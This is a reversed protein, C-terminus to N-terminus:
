KPTWVVEGKPPAANLHITLVEGSMVESRTQYQVVVELFLRSYRRVVGRRALHHVGEKDVTVISPNQIVQKVQNLFPEIEAHKVIIHGVWRSLLLSVMNGDKDPVEFFCRLSRVVESARAGARRLQKIDNTGWGTL